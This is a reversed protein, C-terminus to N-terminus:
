ASNTILKRYDVISNNVVEKALTANQFDEVSVSKNELKKYEEFFNKLEKLFHLPIESIDMIHNVSIDNQAVALIKDDTKGSDLM